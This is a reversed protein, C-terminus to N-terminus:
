GRPRLELVQTTTPELEVMVEEFLDLLAWSEECVAELGPTWAYHYILEKAQARSSEYHAAQTSLLHADAADLLEGLQRLMQIDEDESTWASRMEM